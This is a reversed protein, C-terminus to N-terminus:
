ETFGTSVPPKPATWAHAPYGHIWDVMRHTSAFTARGAAAM